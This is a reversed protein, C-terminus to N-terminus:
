WRAAAIDYDFVTSPTVMSSYHLRLVATDPQPNSGLGASFSAEPFAVFHEDGDYGRVRVADLGDVRESVVLHSTFATLGRIYHRDSGPILDTWDGPAALTATAVRFNVHTDNARVFVTDNAVDVEYDVGTTRARVLVPPMEPAATDVLRAEATVHDAARIILRSRDQSRGIGVFFSGDAEEYVTAGPEGSGRTHLRVRWPRWQANVETWFLRTSDAAWVPTGISDGTIAPGTEGTDLDRIHLRFRESGDTDVAYALWHGDPSVAHGGLRFYDHSAALAPEDLIVQEGGGDARVACGSVTSAAPRSGGGITGAATACRCAPM